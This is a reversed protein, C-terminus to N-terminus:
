SSFFTVFIRKTMSDIYYQLKFVFVDMFCKCYAGKQLWLVRKNSACSWLLETYADVKESRGFYFLLNCIIHFSCSNNLLLLVYFYLLQVNADFLDKVITTTQNSNATNAVFHKGRMGRTMLYTFHRCKRQNSQNDKSKRYASFTERKLDYGTLIACPQKYTYQIVIAKTKIVLLTCALM